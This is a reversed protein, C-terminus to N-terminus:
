PASNGRDGRQPQTLITYGRIVAGQAAFSIQDSAPPRNQLGTPLKGWSSGTPHPHPKSWSSTMQVNGQPLWVWYSRLARSPTGAEPCRPLHQFGVAPTNLPLVQLRQTQKTPSRPRSSLGAWPVSFHPSSTHDQRGCNWKSTPTLIGPLEVEESRKRHTVKDSLNWCM